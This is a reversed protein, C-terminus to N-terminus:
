TQKFLVLREHNDAFSPNKIIIKGRIGNCINEKKTRLLKRGCIKTQM